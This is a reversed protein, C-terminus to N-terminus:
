AMLGVVRWDLVAIDSGPEPAQAGREAYVRVRLEVLGGGESRPHVAEVQVDSRLIDDEFVPGTHDCGHWALLTVLNPLALTTRAAAMSITHGGYVLRRGYAGAGADTHTAAMNLTLRALEPASTVTDRAAIAYTVGARVEEFHAGPAQERFEDLRWSAPVAALVDAIALEPVNKELEDDRGTDAEPDRCPLMPCRWFHMVTDGDQNRVDMELVAMGTAARGPKIRNQRLAVVKTTTRLTDGVFVPTRLRVGRYFLNGRVRQSVYTTQGIAVNCVLSPNVLARTSGTVAECMHRDLPLRLRDGFLAQHFAAHGYTITVSPADDFIRGVELDEFYPSEIEVYADPM